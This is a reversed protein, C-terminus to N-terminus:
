IFCNVLSSSLLFAMKLGCPSVTPPLLYFPIVWTPPTPSPPRFTLGPSQHHQCKLFPQHGGSSSSGGKAQLPLHPPFTPTRPTWECWEEQLPEFLISPPKSLSWARVKEGAMLHPQWKGLAEQPGPRPLTSWGAPSCSASNETEVEEEEESGLHCRWSLLCGSM